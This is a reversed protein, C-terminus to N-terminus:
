FISSIMKNYQLDPIETATILSKRESLIKQFEALENADALGSEKIAEYVEDPHTDIRVALKQTEHIFKYVKKDILPNVIPKLIKLLLAIFVNDIKAYLNANIYTKDTNGPKERFELFVTGRGLLKLFIGQHKATGYYYRKGPAEYIVEFKASVGKRDDFVYMGDDTHKVLYDRIKLAKMSASLFVPHDVMFRTISIHNKFEIDQFVRFVAHSAIIEKVDEKRHDALLEYAIPLKVQRNSKGAHAIHAFVFVSYLILLSLFCPFSFPKQKKNRAFQNQM